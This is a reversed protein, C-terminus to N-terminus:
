FCRKLARCSPVCHLTLSQASACVVSVEGLLRSCHAVGGAREIDEIYYSLRTLTANAATFHQDDTNALWDLVSDLLVAIDTRLAVTVPQLGKVAHLTVVSDELGECTAVLAGPARESEKYDAMVGHLMLGIVFISCTFIYTSDALPFYGQFGFFHELCLRLAIAGTALPTVRLVLKWRLYTALAWATTSTLCSGGDAEVGTAGHQMWALSSRHSVQRTARGIKSVGMAISDRQSILDASDKGASGWEHRSTNVHESVFTVRSRPSGMDEATASVPQVGTGGNPRRISTNLNIEELQNVSASADSNYSLAPGPILVATTPPRQMAPFVSSSMYRAM